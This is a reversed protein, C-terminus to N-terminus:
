VQVKKIKRCDAQFGAEENKKAEAKLNYMNLVGKNQIRFYHKKHLIKMFCHYIKDENGYIAGM